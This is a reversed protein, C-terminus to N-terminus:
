RPASVPRGDHMGTLSRLFAEIDSIQQDALDVDLQSAAMGKIAVRLTPASADHFYPATEAVNRLSPVRLMAPSASALPRFIGHRQLMNGGVNRAQHCSACGLRKFQRYGRLQQDSLSAADGALWRDFRSGPTVLTREYTSIADVMAGLDLDRGYVDRMASNLARDSSFRKVMQEIDHGRSTMVVRITGAAQQELTTQAGKWGLMPNLAANFVSPTDFGKRQRPQTGNSRTDHCDLCSVRSGSSLRRDEFLRRGLAVKRANLAAAAPVADIPEGSAFNMQISPSPVEEASRQEALLVVAIAAGGLMMTPLVPLRRDAILRRLARVLPRM